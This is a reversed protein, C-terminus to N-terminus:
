GVEKGERVFARRPRERMASSRRRGEVEWCSREEPGNFGKGKSGTGDWNVRAIRAFSSSARNASTAAAAALSLPSTGTPSSPPRSSGFPSLFHLSLHLLATCRFLARNRSFTQMTVPNNHSSGTSGGRHHLPLRELVCYTHSDLETRYQQLWVGGERGVQM